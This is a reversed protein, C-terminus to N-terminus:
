DHLSQASLEDGRYVGWGMPFFEGGIICPEDPHNAIYGIVLRNVADQRRRIPPFVRLLTELWTRENLVVM